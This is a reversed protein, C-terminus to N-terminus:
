DMVGAIHFPFSEHANLQIDTTGPQTGAKLNATLNVGEHYRNFDLVNKELEVVDFIEGAKEPMRKTIFGDTTYKNNEVTIAGVRSEMLGIYLHGDNVTQEPLFARATIYGQNEYLKNLDNIVSKVDQTTAM